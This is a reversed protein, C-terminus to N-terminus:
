AASQDGKQHSPSPEVARPFALLLADLMLHPATRLNHRFEFEWLYTQLHKKSVWVYTGSIGRKLTGWFAEITNTHVPGRVYEKRKHNVTAHRYGAERLDGFVKAEDTAVRSGPKIWKAVVPFVTFTRRDPIVRTVVEGGQREAMGLVVAKDDRGMKDKGGIFAKDAEVIPYGPGAGGLPYDGDVYGMYRRILNCMRWATKYTVGTQRQVEKAAVGNRSACFLFMVYFWTKLGTRSKEFPTGVMPFVQNGCHECEYCRRARVRYYRADKGCKPCTFREGYRIRMLHDLCADDNPFRADFQKITM